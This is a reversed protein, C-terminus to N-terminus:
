RSTSSATNSSSSSIPSSTGLLEAAATTLALSSPISLHGPPALAGFAGTHPSHGLTLPPLPSPKIPVPVAPSTQHQHNSPKLVQHPHTAHTAHQHPHFDGNLHAAFTPAISSLASSTLSSSLSSALDSTSYPAVFGSMSMGAAFQSAFAPLPTPILPQPVVTSKFEPAIINEITFPQKYSHTCNGSGSYPQFHSIPTAYQQLRLRTQEQLYSASELGQKLTESMLSGGSKHLKFRKRRRLFSGNEFMDGCLPHLAWYSGKGPRDPRRPIKIFCDNFSLNHRLSNQWRQTNQRYFPFRDMIFKYIDSLPLMKETSSQIAMATLAIYSYPPKQDSYSNRGPRPM